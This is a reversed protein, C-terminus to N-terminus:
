FHHTTLLDFVIFHYIIFLLEGRALFLHYDKLDEESVRIYAYTGQLKTKIEFSCM